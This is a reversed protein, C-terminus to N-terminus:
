LAPPLSQSLSLSMWEIYTLTCIDVDMGRQQLVRGEEGEGEWGIVKCRTRPSCAIFMHITTAISINLGIPDMTKVGEAVCSHM